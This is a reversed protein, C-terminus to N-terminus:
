ALAKLVCKFICLPSFHSIIIILMTFIQSKKHNILDNKTIFSLWSAFPSLIIGHFRCSLDSWASRARCSCIWQSWYVPSLYYWIQIVFLISANLNFILYCPATLMDRSCCKIRKEHCPSQHCVSMFIHRAIYASFKKSRIINDPGADGFDKTM